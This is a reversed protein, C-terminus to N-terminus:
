VCLAERPITHLERKTEEVFQKLRPLAGGWLSLGFVLVAEKKRDYFCSREMKLLELLESETYRFRNLYCKSLIEFYLDGNGPYEKVRLMATDVLDVLWKTEFLSGIREEFLEKKEESAFTELYILAAELDGSYYCAIEDRVQGSRMAASWCVNRYVSLLTRAREYLRREDIKQLRCIRKISEMSQTEKKSM